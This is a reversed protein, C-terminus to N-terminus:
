CDYIVNAVHQMDRMLRMENGDEIQYKYYNQNRWAVTSYKVEFIGWGHVM